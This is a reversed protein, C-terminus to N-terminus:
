IEFHYGRIKTFVCIRENVDLRESQVYAEGKIGQSDREANQVSVAQIGKIGLVM